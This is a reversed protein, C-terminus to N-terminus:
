PCYFVSFSSSFILVCIRSLLRDPISTAQWFPRSMCHVGLDSESATQDPGDMNAIRVLMKHIAARIVLMKNSFLSFTNLIKSHKGYYNPRWTEISSIDPNWLELYPNSAIPYKGM